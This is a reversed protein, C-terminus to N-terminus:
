KAEKLAAKAEEVEKRMEDIMLLATGEDLLRLADSFM